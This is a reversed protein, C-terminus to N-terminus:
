YVGMVGNRHFMRLQNGIPEEAVRTQHPAFFPDRAAAASKCLRFGDLADMRRHHPCLEITQYLSRAQGGLLQPSRIIDLATRRNGSTKIRQPLKARNAKAM